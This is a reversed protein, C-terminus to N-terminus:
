DTSHLTFDDIETDRRGHSPRREISHIASALIASNLEWSVSTLTNVKEDSPRPTM